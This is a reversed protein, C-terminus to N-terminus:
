KNSQHKEKDNSLNMRKTKSQQNSSFWNALSMKPEPVNSNANKESKKYVCSDFGLFYNLNSSLPTNDCKGLGLEM